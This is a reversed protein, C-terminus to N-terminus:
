SKLTVYEHGRIFNMVEAFIHLHLIYIYYKTCFNLKVGVQKKTNDWGLEKAMLEAVRPLVSETVRVDLFALRLRRAVM